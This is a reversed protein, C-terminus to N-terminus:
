RKQEPEDPARGNSGGPMGVSTTPQPAAPKPTRPQRSGAKRCPAGNHKHVKSTIRQQSWGSRGLDVNLEGDPVFRGRASIDHGFGAVWGKPHRHQAHGPFAPTRGEAAAPCNAQPSDGAMSGVTAASARVKRGVVALRSGVGAPRRGPPVQNRDHAPLLGLQYRAKSHDRNNVHGIRHAPNGRERIRRRSGVRGISSGAWWRLETGGAVVARL